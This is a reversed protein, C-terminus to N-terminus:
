KRPAPAIGDLLAEAWDYRGIGVFLRATSALRSQRMTKFKKDSAKALEVIKKVEFDHTEGTWSYRTSIIGSMRGHADRGTIKKASKELMRLAAEEEGAEKYLQALPLGSLRMREPTTLKAEQVQMSGVLSKADLGEIYRNFISQFASVPCGKLKEQPLNEQMQAALELATAEDGVRTLSKFVQQMHRKCRKPDALFEAGLERYAERAGDPDTAELQELEVFRATIEDPLRTLNTSALTFAGQPPQELALDYIKPQKGRNAEFSPIRTPHLNRADFDKWKAKCEAVIEEAFGARRTEIHYRILNVAIERYDLIDPPQTGRNRTQLWGLIEKAKEDGKKQEECDTYAVLLALGTDKAFQFAHNSRLDGRFELLTNPNWEMAELVENRYEEATALKGDNILDLTLTTAARIQTGKSPIMRILGKAQGLDGRGYYFRSLAALTWSKGQHGSRKAGFKFGPGVRVEDLKEETIQNGSNFIFGNNTSWVREEVIRLQRIGEKERGAKLLAEALGLRARTGYLYREEIDTEGQPVTFPLKEVQAQAGALDPTFVLGFIAGVLSYPHVKM